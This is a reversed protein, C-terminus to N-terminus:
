QVARDKGHCARSNIDSQRAWLENLPDAYSSSPRPTSSLGVVFREGSNEKIQGIFAKGEIM